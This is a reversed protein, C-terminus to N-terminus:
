SSHKWYFGVPKYMLAVSTQIDLSLDDSRKSQDKWPIEESLLFFNVKDKFNAHIFNYNFKCCLQSSVDGGCWKRWLRSTTTSEQLSFFLHFCCCWDSMIVVPPFLVFSWWKLAPDLIILCFPLFWMIFVYVPLIFDPSVFLYM